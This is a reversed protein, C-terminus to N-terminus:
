RSQSPEMQEVAERSLPPPDRLRYDGAQKAGATGPTFLESHSPLQSLEVEEVYQVTDVDEYVSPLPDERVEEMASGIGNFQETQKNVTKQYM